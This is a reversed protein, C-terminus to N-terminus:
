EGAKKGQKRRVFENEYKIGKGKYPEPKKLARVDAAFQGVKEKDFGSITIKNDKASVELGQPIEKEITHSFGLKLSLKNGVMEAKFGVGNVELIKTYGETVGLIMGKALSAYTGWLNNALRTSKVPNINVEGSDIVIEIEDRIYKNLEGKPGAVKLNRDAFTVQVNSPIEIKSKGIRSM